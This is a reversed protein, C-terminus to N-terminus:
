VNTQQCNCLLFTYTPNCIVTRGVSGKVTLSRIGQVFQKSLLATRFISWIFSWAIEKHIILIVHTHKTWTVSYRANLHRWIYNKLSRHQRQSELLYCQTAYQINLLGHRIRVKREPARRHSPHSRHSLRSNHVNRNMVSTIAAINPTPVTRYHRVNM